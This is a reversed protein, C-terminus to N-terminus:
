RELYATRLDAEMERSVGLAHTLYATYSGYEEEAAEFYRELYQREVRLAIGLAQLETEGVGQAKAAALIQRNAEERLDNTALYDQFITERDVGLLSLLIAAAVGTRDKGAYCHFLMAGDKNDLAAGVFQTYCLKAHEDKALAVYINCMYSHVEDTSTLKHFSESDPAQNHEKLIDLQLYAVGDMADDPERDVEEQTRLDVVMKLHHDHLLAAQEQESLGVPQGARLLRHARVKLGDKTPLGGLDRFNVPNNM